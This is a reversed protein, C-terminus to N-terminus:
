RDDGNGKLKGRKQRDALKKINEEAVMDFDLNFVHKSDCLMILCWLTNSIDKSVAQRTEMFNMDGRLYKKVKEAIKGAEGVVDLAMRAIILNETNSKVSITLGKKSMTRKALKLYENFDM